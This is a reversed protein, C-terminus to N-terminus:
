PSLYKLDAGLGKLRTPNPSMAEVFNAGTIPFQYATNEDSMIEWNDDLEERVESNVTPKLYVYSPYISDKGTIPYRTVFAPYKGATKYVSLYLLECFTLPYVHEKLRGEPLEDIDQMLKYTNDPGKYILGMYYGSLELPKHRISVENFSTIVKELGEDTMWSDFYIPKISVMERKLTQKNVLVVDANPALFVKSLFCNKINFRSIPLIAKLFQYLGVITNNFGLNGKSELDESTINMSTIVNRTGNFIRRSAWKGMMLKKKGQIMNEIYDYIENFTIQISTRINNLLEINNKIAAESISNSLSLLKKYFNNIEDESERGDGTIEYDRLGAPMVIIKSTKAKSKYKTVLSIYQERSISPREEFHINEWNEMFFHYGTKGDMPSAKEFDKLEDNWVAYSKGTIIETYFNKLKNLARFIIPHLVEVKVDIYSFRRNRREDGIKGFISVSYLGDEHYNKTSGDFIDLVRVPKLGSITEKNLELLSINFPISLDSM